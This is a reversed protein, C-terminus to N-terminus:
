NTFIFVDTEIEIVPFIVFLKILQFIVDIDISQREDTEKPQSNGSLRKKITPVQV